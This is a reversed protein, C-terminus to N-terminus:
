QTDNFGSFSTLMQFKFLWMHCTLVVNYLFCCLDLGNFCDLNNLVNHLWTGPDFIIDARSILFSPSTCSNRTDTSMEVRSRRPNWDSQTRWDLWPLIYGNGPWGFPYTLTKQQSLFLLRSLCFIFYNCEKGVWIGKMANWLYDNKM